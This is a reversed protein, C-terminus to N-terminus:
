FKLTQSQCRTKEAGTKEEHGGRMLPRKNAKGCALATCGKYGTM